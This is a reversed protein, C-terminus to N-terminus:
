RFAGFPHLAKVNSFPFPNCGSDQKTYGYYHSINVPFPYKAYPVLLYLVTELLNGGALLALIMELVINAIGVIVMRALVVSKLSFRASMELESMGWESSDSFSFAASLFIHPM